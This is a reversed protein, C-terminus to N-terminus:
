HRAQRASERASARGRPRQGNMGAGGSRPSEPRRAERSESVAEAMSLLAGGAAAARAILKMTTGPGLLSVVAFGASGVLKPNAMAARVLGDIVSAGGGDGEADADSSIADELAATAEVARQRLEFESVRERGSEALRRSGLWLAVGVVAALASVLALAGAPGIAPALGLYLAGLLGVLAAGLLLGAAVYGASAMALRELRRGALQSRAAIADAGAEAAMILRDFM